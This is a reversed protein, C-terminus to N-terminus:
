CDADDFVVCPSKGGLELSVKKLNTKAATEMITQGVEVSGTFAVKRIDPHASIASGVTIGYGPLVNIVGDPFGAEKSLAAMYLATLPTDEAPKLVLTCGAALAPGWKWALMLIPYNWPIIQGVVGIPERRTMAFFGYDAPVTKGCVKDALGGYYRLTDISYNIDLIADGRAKGNDLTELNGIIEVDREVLDALRHSFQFKLEKCNEYREMSM